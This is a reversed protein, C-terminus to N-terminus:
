NKVQRRKYWDTIYVTFIPLLLMGMLPLLVALAKGVPTVPFIAAGVTTVGMGAWWLANGFGHLATNAHVECDYFVLASIYTIAVLTFIYAALLRKIGNDAFWLEAVYLAMFVRLMPLINIVVEWARSPHVDFWHLINVYPISIALFWLHTFFYRWRHPSSFVQVFFDAIFVMCVAFQVSMYEDTFALNDGWVVEITLAAVLMLGALLALLDFVNRSARLNKRDLAMINM